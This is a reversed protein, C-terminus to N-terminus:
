PAIKPRVRGFREDYTRCIRTLVAGYDNFTRQYDVWSFPYPEENTARYRLVLFEDFRPAAEAVLRREAAAAESVPHAYRHGDTLFQREGEYSMCYPANNIGVIAVCIPNGAGRQFHDIQGVLDSGVRDIQKIMAKQLIKVEAGIEVTAIPGRAITFGPDVIAAINPILEGFTGDGRRATVGQRKNAINLVSERSLVRQGLLESKGVAYLDEYLEYAVRDGQTSSRHLYRTGDFLTRFAELLRYTPSM